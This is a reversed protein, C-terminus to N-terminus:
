RWFQLFRSNGNRCVLKKQRPDLINLLDYLRVLRSSYNQDFFRLICINNIIQTSTLVMYIFLINRFNQKIQHQNKDPVFCMSFLLFNWYIVYIWGAAGLNNLTWKRITFRFFLFHDLNRQIKQFITQIKSTSQAQHFNVGFWVL